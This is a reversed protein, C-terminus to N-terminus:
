EQTISGCAIKENAKELTMTNLYLKCKMLEKLSSYSM